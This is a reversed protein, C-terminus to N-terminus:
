DSLWGALILSAAIKDTDSGATKRKGLQRQKKHIQQAEMSTLREDAAHVPLNFRGALQRMFRQAATTMAQEDGNLQLPVGVVLGTPTWENILEAIAPWDPKGNITNVTCLPACHYPNRGGIAIGIRKTGFDFGLFTETAPAM